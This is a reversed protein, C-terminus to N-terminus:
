GTSASNASWHCSPARVLRENLSVRNRCPEHEYSTASSTSEERHLCPLRLRDRICHTVRIDAQAADFVRHVPSKGVGPWSRSLRANANRPGPGPPAGNHQLLLLLPFPRRSGAWGWGRGWGMSGAPGARALEPGAKALGAPSGRACIKATSDISGFLGRGQPEAHPPGARGPM